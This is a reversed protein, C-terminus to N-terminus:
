QNKKSISLDSYFAVGQAIMEDPVRAPIELILKQASCDRDPVSFEVAINESAASGKSLKAVGLDRGSNDACAIRWRLGRESRFNEVKLRGSFAYKGPELLLLHQINAFPVRAGFFEVKLHSGNISRIVDISVAKSPIVQWDFPLNTLEHQFRGNYLLEDNKFQDPPLSGLWSIYAASFHKDDILKKLLFSWEDRTPPTRSINLRGFLDILITNDKSTRCLYGILERRWPPATALMRVLSERAEAGLRLLSITSPGVIELMSLRGRLLFDMERLAISLSRSKLADDYLWLHSALDIPNLKAALSMISQARSLDGAQSVALGYSSLAGPAFPDVGVLRASIEAALRVNSPDGAKLKERVLSLQAEPSYEDWEIAKAPADAGFFDSMGHGVIRWGLFFCLSFALAVQMPVIALTVVTKTAPQSM